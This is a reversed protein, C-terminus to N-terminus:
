NKNQEKKYGAVPYHRTIIIERQVDTHRDTWWDYMRGDM